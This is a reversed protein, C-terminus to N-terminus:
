QPALRSTPQATATQVRENDVRTQWGLRGALDARLQRSASIAAWLATTENEFNSAQNM